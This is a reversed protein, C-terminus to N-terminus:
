KKQLEPCDFTGDYATISQDGKTVTVTLHSESASRTGKSLVSAEGNPGGVTFTISETLVGNDSNSSGGTLGHQEIPTGLLAAVQQSKTVAALGCVHADTRDMLKFVSFILLVVVAVGALLLALVVGVIIWVVRANM